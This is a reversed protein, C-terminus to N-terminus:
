SVSAHRYHAMIQNMQDKVHLKLKKLRQEELEDAGTVHPRSEIAEVQRKLQAHQEALTRFQEDTALLHAKLDEDQTHNEM